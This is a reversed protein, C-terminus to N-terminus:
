FAKELMGKESRLRNGQNCTLRAVAKMAAATTAM